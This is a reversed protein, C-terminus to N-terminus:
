DAAQQLYIRRERRSAERASIVRIVEEKRKNQAIGKQAQTTHKSANPNEQNRVVHVVVLV